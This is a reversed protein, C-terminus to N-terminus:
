GEFTSMNLQYPSPQLAMTQPLTADVPPSGRATALVMCSYTWALSLSMRAMRLKGMAWSRVTSSAAAAPRMAGAPAELTM